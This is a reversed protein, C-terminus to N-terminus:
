TQEILASGPRSYRVAASLRKVGRPPAGCEMAYRDEDVGVTVLPIALADLCSQLSSLFPGIDGSAGIEFTM